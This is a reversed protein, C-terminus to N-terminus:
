FLRCGYASSCKLSTTHICVSPCCVCLLVCYVCVCKRETESNSETSLKTNHLCQLFRSFLVHMLNNNHMYHHQQNRSKKLKMSSTSLSNVDPALSPPTSSFIFYNYVDYTGYLLLPFSSACVNVELYSFNCLRICTRLFTSCPTNGCQPLFM